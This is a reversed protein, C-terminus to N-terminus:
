GPKWLAQPCSSLMGLTTWTKQNRILDVHDIVYSFISFLKASFIITMVPGFDEGRNSKRKVNM